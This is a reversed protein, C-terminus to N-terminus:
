KLPLTFRFVAGGEPRNGAAITGGHARVISACISLGLGMGRHSDGSDKDQADYGDFLREMRKPDVGRGHDRVQFVAEGQGASLEAEVPEDSGSHYVANEILNILVQEVLTADMPVILLDDPAKVRLAQNPFRRRIQGAAEALVEEAVEPCKRIAAPGESIRTVSLLNEVMRILWQANDRIDGYLQDRDAQELEQGTELLASTAGSISTLPTRLDHSIARLLNARLKETEMELSVRNREAAVQRKEEVMAYQAAFLRLFSRTVEDRALAGQDTVQFAGAAQGRIEVPLLFTGPAAEEGAPLYRTPFGSSDEMWRAVLQSVQAEEEAILLQNTMRYLADTRRENERAKEAQNRYNAMLSSTIISTSLLLAFTVPYGTRTFNFALYPWMFFYNVGFVSLFSAAISYFYGPTVCAVVMVALTYIVSVNVNEEFLFHMWASFLTACLMIGLMRLCAKGKLRFRRIRSLAEKGYEWAKKVMIGKREPMARWAVNGKINQWM